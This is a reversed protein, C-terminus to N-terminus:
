GYWARPDGSRVIRGALRFQERGAGGALLGRLAAGIVMTARLAAVRPPSFHKQAFRMMNAYWYAKATVPSLSAVSHGGVHRMRAGAAYWVRLRRSQARRCIDVDEFWLPHFREDFGSLAEFVPRRVLLSAGAPQEVRQDRAPDFGACTARLAAPNRPWVRNILLLDLVLYSWTPLGRVAFGHQYEGDDGVLHGGALDAANAELVDALADCAGPAVIVDPNLFLLLPVTGAARAGANCGGAFGLNGQGEVLRVGAHTRVLAATGDSSGNDVVVVSWGPAGDRLAGLCADIHTASNYTVIVVAGRAGVEASM